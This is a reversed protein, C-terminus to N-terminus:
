PILRRAVFSAPTMPLHRSQAVSDLVTTTVVVLTWRLTNRLARALIQKKIEAAESIAPCFPKGFHPPLRQVGCSISRECM